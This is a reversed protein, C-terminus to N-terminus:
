DNAAEKMIESITAVPVFMLLWFYSGSVNMLGSILAVFFVDFRNFKDTFFFKIM